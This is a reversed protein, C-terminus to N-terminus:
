TIPKVSHSAQTMLNHSEYTHTVLTLTRPLVQTYLTVELHLTTLGEDFPEGGRARPDPREEVMANCPTEEEGDKHIPRIKEGM